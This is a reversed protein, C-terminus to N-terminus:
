GRETLYVTLDVDGPSYGLETLLLAAEARHQTGHNVVHVLIHWLLRQMSMGQTTTYPILSGLEADTLGAVYARMAQEEEDWRRCLDQLTAFNAATILESPSHREQCRVRWIRRRGSRPHARKPDGALEALDGLWAREGDRPQAAALVRSTAWYNYDFLLAIDSQNM